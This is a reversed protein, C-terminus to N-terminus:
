VLVNSSRRHSKIWDYLLSKYNGGAEIELRVQQSSFWVYGIRKTQLNSPSLSKSFREDKEAKASHEAKIRLEFGPIATLFHPVASTSYLTYM